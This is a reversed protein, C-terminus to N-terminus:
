DGEVKSYKEEMEQAFKASWPAPLAKITRENIGGCSTCEWKWTFDEEPHGFSMYLDNYEKNCKDCKEKYIIRSM